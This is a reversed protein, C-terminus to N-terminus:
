SDWEKGLPSETPRLTIGALLTATRKTSFQYAAAKPPDIVRSNSVTAPKSIATEERKQLLYVYLEHKIQQQRSLDIFIRETAPVNKVEAELQRTKQELDAKTINLRSQTSRLNALMDQRM